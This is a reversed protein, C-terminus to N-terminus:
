SGASVGGAAGNPRALRDRLEDLFGQQGRLLKKRAEVLDFWGARDVEPFERQKGSRPPWEMSFNNSRIKDADCDGAAAFAHVLKGSPQRLPKMAVLEGTVSFGTEEEFERLAAARPDEGAGFEGKPISWAGADKRAWFPGGPHVLFVEIAGSRRRWLLVGASQKRAV